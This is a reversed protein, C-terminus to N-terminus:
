SDKKSLKFVKMVEGVAKKHQGSKIQNVVCTSLHAELLADEFSSVAKKVASAQTIIDVCYTDDELMAQLGRIQGEIIKLRKLLKNKLISKM